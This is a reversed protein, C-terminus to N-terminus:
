EGKKEALLTQHYPISMSKCIEVTTIKIVYGNDTLMKALGDMIAKKKMFDSEEKTSYSLYVEADDKFKPFSTFRVDIGDEIHKLLEERVEQSTM